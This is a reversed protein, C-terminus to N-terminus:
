TFINKKVFEVNKKTSVAKKDLPFVIRENLAKSFNRFNPPLLRKLPFKIEARPFQNSSFQNTFSLKKWKLEALSIQKRDVPFTNKFLSEM